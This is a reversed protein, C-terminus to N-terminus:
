SDGANPPYKIRKIVTLELLKLYVFLGVYYIYTLFDFFRPNEHFFQYLVLPVLTIYYSKKKLKRLVMTM